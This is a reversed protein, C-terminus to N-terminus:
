TGVEPVDINGSKPSFNRRGSWSGVRVESEFVGTRGLIWTDEVPGRVWHDEGPGRYWTGRVPGHGCIDEGLGPVWVVEDLGLVWTVELGSVGSRVESGPRVM